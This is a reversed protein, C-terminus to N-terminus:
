LGLLDSNTLESMLEGEEGCEEVQQQAQLRSYMDRSDDNDSDLHQPHHDAGSAPNGFYVSNSDPLGSMKLNM